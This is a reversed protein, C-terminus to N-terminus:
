TKLMFLFISVQARVVLKRERGKLTPCINHILAGQKENSYGFVEGILQGIGTLLIESSYEKKLVPLTDLPTNPINGIPCNEIILVGENNINRSFNRLLIKLDDSLYKVVLDKSKDLFSVTNSYPSIDIDCFINQLRNSCEDTLKIKFDVKSKVFDSEHKM